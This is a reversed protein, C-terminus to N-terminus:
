CGDLEDILIPTWGVTCSKRPWSSAEWLEFLLNSGELLFVQCV